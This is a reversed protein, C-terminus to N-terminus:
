GAQAEVAGRAVGGPIAPQGIRSACGDRQGPSLGSAAPLFRERPDVVAPDGQPLKLADIAEPKPTAQLVRCPTAAVSEGPLAKVDTLFPLVALQEAPIPLKLPGLPKTDKVDPATSFLAKDPSGILGFKKGPAYIWVEQGDRGAVYSQRDWNLSLRLHDPAQFALDLQRGETEKPLGEANLVKVTTTFTRPAQNTPPALIAVVQSLAQAFLQSPSNTQTEQAPAIRPLLLAVAVFVPATRPM